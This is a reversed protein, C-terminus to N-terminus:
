VPMPAQSKGAGLVNHVFEIRETFNWQRWINPTFRRDVPRRSRSVIQLRAFIAFAILGNVGLRSTRDSRWSRPQMESGRQEFLRPREAYFDAKDRQVDTKSCKSWDFGRGERPMHHVFFSEFDAGGRSRDDIRCFTLMPTDDGDAGGGRAAQFAAGISRASRERSAGAAGPYKNMRWMFEPNHVRQERVKM